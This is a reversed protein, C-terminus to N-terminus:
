GANGTAPCDAARDLRFSLWSARRRRARTLISNPRSMAFRRISATLKLGTRLLRSFSSRATARPPTTLHNLADVYPDSWYAAPCPSVDLSRYESKFAKMARESDKLLDNTPGASQQHENAITELAAVQEVLNKETDQSPLTVLILSRRLFGFCLDVGSRVTGQKVYLKAKKVREQSQQVETEKAQCEHEKEVVLCWAMERELTLLREEAKEVATIEDMKKKAEKIVDKMEPLVTEKQKLSIQITNIQTRVLDYEEALQALQTGQLFFQILSPFPHFPIEDALLDGDTLDSPTPSSGVDYKAKANSKTLFARAADQSLVNIPNDVQINMHDLIADLDDRKTSITKNTKGSKIKYGGSVKGDRFVNREVVISDGYLDERYAEFGKNKITM